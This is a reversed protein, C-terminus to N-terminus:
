SNRSVNKINSTHNYNAVSWGWVWNAKDIDSTVGFHCNCTENRGIKIIFKKKLLLHKNTVSKFHLTAKVAKKM